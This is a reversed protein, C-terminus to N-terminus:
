AHISDNKPWMLPSHGCRSVMASKWARPKATQVNRPSSSVSSSSALTSRDLRDAMASGIPGILAVHEGPAIRLDLPGLAPAADRAAAPHRAALADLEIQM